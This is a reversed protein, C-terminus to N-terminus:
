KFYGDCFGHDGRKVHRNCVFDKLKKNPRFVPRCPSVEGYMGEVEAAMGRDSVSLNELRAELDEILAPPATVIEYPPPSPEPLVVEPARPITIRRLGSARISPFEDQRVVFQRVPQMYHGEDSSKFVCNYCSKLWGNKYAILFVVVVVVTVFIASANGFLSFFNLSTLYGWVKSLQDENYTHYYKLSSLDKVGFDEKNVLLAKIVEALETRNKIVSDFINGDFKWPFVTVEYDMDINLDTSLQHAKLNVRCDEPLSIETQKDFRVTDVIDGNCTVVSSFPEHVLTAWKKLGIKAVFEVPAGVRVDCNNQILRVDRLYLGGICSKHIDIKLTNRGSCIYVNRIKFCSSLGAEDFVRFKHPPVQDQTPGVKMPLIALYKESSSYPLITGNVDLSQMLPFPIFEYLKLEEGTEVMPIHLYIAFVRGNKDYGYSAQIEFLDSPHLLIMNCNFEKAKEAVRKFIEVLQEGPILSTSVRGLRGATIISQIRSITDKLQDTLVIVSTIIKHYNKYELMGLLKRLLVVDMAVQVHKENLLEMKDILLNYQKSLSSFRSEIKDIKYVNRFGLILSVGSLFIGVPGALAARRSRRHALLSGSVSGKEPVVLLTGKLEMAHRRFMTLLLSSIAVGDLARNRYLETVEKLSVESLKSVNFNELHPLLSKGSEMREQEVMEELKQIVQDMVTLIESMNFTFRLHLFTSKNIVTGKEEFILQNDKPYSCGVKPKSKETQGNCFGAALLVIVFILGSM